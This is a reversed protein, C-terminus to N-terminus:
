DKLGAARFQERAKGLEHILHEAQAVLDTRAAESTALRERLERNEATLDGLRQSLADISERVARLEAAVDGTGATGPSDSDRNSM